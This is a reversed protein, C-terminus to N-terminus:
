LLSFDASFWQCLEDSRVTRGFNDRADEIWIEPFFYNGKLLDFDEAVEIPVPAAKDSKQVTKGAAQRSKNIHSFNSVLSALEDM